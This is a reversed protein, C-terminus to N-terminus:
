LGCCRSSIMMAMKQLWGISNPRDGDLMMDEEAEVGIDDAM